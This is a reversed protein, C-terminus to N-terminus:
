SVRALGAEARRQETVIGVEVAIALAERHLGAATAPPATEGLGNLARAVGDRQGTERFGTLARRFHRAAGAKDGSRLALAGLSELTWSEGVRNGLERCIQLARTLSGAAEPLLGRRTDVDGLVSLANAEGIRDGEGGLVRIALALHAAADDLQHRRQEITALIILARGLRTPEGTRGFLQAARGAMAIADDLRDEREAIQALNDLTTGEGSLDGLEEFITRAETLRERAPGFRAMRVHAVGLHTLARAEAQRDGGLRAAYLAHGNITLSDAPNGGNLWRFLTAALATAHRHWGNEAAHAIVAVLTTREAELWSTAAALDGLQPTTPGPPPAPPRGAREAPAIVDMAAGAASLYHDFLRTLAARRRAPPDEDACRQLAYARVLDHAHYRAEAAPHTLHHRQLALLHMRAAAPAIGALAAVSHADVDHGPHLAALRFLRRRQPSLRQYSLAIAPTARDDVPGHREDLREAHDTLTWGPTGRIHAAVLSLALPLRRCRAAIRDAARPDDGAPIGATASRMYAVAEAPELLNLLIRTVQGLGALRHRTTILVPCGPLGTLLPRVQAASDANDLLVLTRTGALRRRYAAIRDDLGYPIQHGAMGLLRLFGDLVAGPEAPPQDPDPHYGRLDVFLVRDHGANRAVRVALQTKGAGAMGSVVCVVPRDGTDLQRGLRAQETVRGTFTAPEPPLDARVRVQAAARAANGTVQLAHRWRTVYGPDATLAEVIALVLDTSIRRRGSRFCDAVTARRADEAAPRGDARWRATIRRRITEYSPDGACVKLARLMETLDDLSTARGPDPLATFDDM